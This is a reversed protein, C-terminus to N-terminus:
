IAEYTGPRCERCHWLCRCSDACGHRLCFISSNQRALEMHCEARHLSCSPQTHVMVVQATNPPQLLGSQELMSAHVAPVHMCAAVLHLARRVALAALACSDPEVPAGLSKAVDAGAHAHRLRHVGAFHSECADLVPGELIVHPLCTTHSVRASHMCLPHLHLLMGQGQLASVIPNVPQQAAQGSAALSDAVATM